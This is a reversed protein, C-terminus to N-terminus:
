QYSPSQKFEKESIKRVESNQLTIVSGSHADTFRLIGCAEKKLNKTYYVKGSMPERVQYYGYGACGSMLMGGALIVAIGLTNTIKM